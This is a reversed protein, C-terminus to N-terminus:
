LSGTDRTTWTAPELEAALISAPHRPDSYAAAPRIRTIWWLSISVLLAGIVFATNGYSHTWLIVAIVLPSLLIQRDTRRIFLPLIALAVAIAGLRGLGTLTKVDGGLPLDELLTFRRVDISLDIHILLLGAVALAIASNPLRLWIQGGGDM